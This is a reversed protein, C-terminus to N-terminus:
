PPLVSIYLCFIITVDKKICPTCHGGEKAWRWLNRKGWKELIFESPSPYPQACCDSLKPGTLQHGPCDRSSRLPGFTDYGLACNTKEKTHFSWTLSPENLGTYKLACGPEHTLRSSFIITTPLLSLPLCLGWLVKIHSDKDYAWNLKNSEAKENGNSVPATHM